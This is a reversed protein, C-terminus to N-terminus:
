RVFVQDYQWAASEITPRFGLEAMKAYLMAPTHGFRALFKATVEVVVTHVLPNALFQEMGCIVQYEAGEVDIKVLAKGTRQALLPELVLDGPLTPILCADFDPNSATDALFNLGTHTKATLFRAVGVQDSLATNFFVVNEAQNDALNQVLRTFERASPEFCVVLGTKGVQEAAILAFFGINSGIDCFLDGPKLQKLVEVTHHHPNTAIPECYSMDMSSSLFINLQVGYATRAKFSKFIRDLCKALFFKGRYNPTYKWHSIYIQAIASALPM